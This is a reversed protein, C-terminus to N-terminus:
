RDYCLHTLVIGVAIAISKIWKLEVSKVNM